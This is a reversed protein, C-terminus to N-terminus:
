VVKKLCVQSNIFFLEYEENYFLLFPNIVQQPPVFTLDPGNNYEPHDHRLLYDDILLLGDKKLLRWTLCLDLILTRAFHDGDVYIFDFYNRHTALMKSLIDESLEKYLLVKDGHLSLNYLGNEGIFPDVCHIRSGSDTLVNDLLWVTTRGELTGVELFSLNEKGNFYERIKNFNGPYVDGWYNKSETLRYEKM